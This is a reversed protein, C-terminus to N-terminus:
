VEEILSAEEMRVWLGEQFLNDTGPLIFELCTSVAVYM